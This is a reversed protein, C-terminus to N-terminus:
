VTLSGGFNHPSYGIFVRPGVPLSRALAYDRSHFLVCQSAECVGFNRENRADIVFTHSSLLDLSPVFFPM